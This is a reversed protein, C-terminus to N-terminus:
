VNVLLAWEGGVNLDSSSDELTDDKGVLHSSGNDESSIVKMEDLLIVSELLSMVIEWSMKGWSEWSNSGTINDGNSLASWDGFGDSEVGDSNFLLSDNTVNSLGEAHESHSLVLVVLILNQCQASAQDKDSFHFLM